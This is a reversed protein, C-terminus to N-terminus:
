LEDLIRARQEAHEEETITGQELLRDLLALRDETSMELEPPGTIKAGKGLRSAKFRKVANWIAPWPVPGTIAFVLAAAAMVTGPPLDRFEDPPEYSVTLGEERLLQAFFSAFAPSGEYTLEIVDNAMGLLWACL